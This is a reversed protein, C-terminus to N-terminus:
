SANKRAHLSLRRPAVALGPRVGAHAFFFDGCTFSSKLHGLFQRHSAPLVGDFEAAIRARAAANANHAHAIPFYLRYKRHSPTAIRDNASPAMEKFTAMTLSKSFAKRFPSPQHRLSVGPGGSRRRGSGCRARHGARASEKRGLACSRGPTTFRGVVGAYRHFYKGKHRKPQHYGASQRANPHFYDGRPAYPRDDFM